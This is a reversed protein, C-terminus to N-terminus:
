EYGYSVGDVIGDFYIFNEDLYNWVAQFKSPYKIGSASTKYNECLATWPLYEMTGDNNAIARDNTSFSIMEYKENFTFIGSATEEGYNITAKLEFDSIEEFEIYQQLLITPAFLSEGLFTALCAKNMEPGTQNFLTIVKALVGKMGGTANQYYDYGEFPIGFLSSNILAMRSPKKVFNYQTYDIALTPGSRSQVFTVNSYEMKLYSMKPTGLYGCYEIYKQIAMPFHSFEEQEFLENELYMRESSILVDIDNQFEKKIPSFPINFWIIIAAIFIFVVGLIILM